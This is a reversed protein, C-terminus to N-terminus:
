KKDVFVHTGTGSESSSDLISRGIKIHLPLLDALHDRGLDSAFDCIGLLCVSLLWWSPFTERKCGKRSCASHFYSCTPSAQQPENAAHKACRKLANVQMEIMHMFVKKGYHRYSKKTSEKMTVSLLLHKEREQPVNRALVLLVAFIVVCVRQIVDARIEELPALFYSRLALITNHFHLPL